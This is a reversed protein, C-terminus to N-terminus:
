YTTTAVDFKGAALLCRAYELRRWCDPSKGGARQEILNLAELFDSNARNTNQLRQYTLGRQFYATYSDDMQEVAIDLDALTEEYRNFQRHTM